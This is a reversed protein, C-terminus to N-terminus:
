GCYAAAMAEGVPASAPSMVAGVTHDMASLIAPAAGAFSVASVDGAGLELDDLAHAM